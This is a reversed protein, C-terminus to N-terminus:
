KESKRGVLTEADADADLGKSGRERKKQGRKCAQFVPLFGKVKSRPM